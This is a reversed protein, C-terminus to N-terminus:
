KCGVGLMLAESLGDDDRRNSEVVVIVISSGHEMALLEKELESTTTCFMLVWEIAKRSVVGVL